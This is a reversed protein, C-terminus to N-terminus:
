SRLMRRRPPQPPAPRVRQTPRPTVVPTMVRMVTFGDPSPVCPVDGGAPTMCVRQAHRKPTRRHCRRQNIVSPSCRRRRRPIAHRRSRRCRLTTRRCPDARRVLRHSSPPKRRAAKACATDAGCCSPTACLTEAPRTSSPPTPSPTLNTWTKTSFRLVIWVACPCPTLVVSASGPPPTRTAARVM